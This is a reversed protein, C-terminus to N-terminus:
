AVWSRRRTIREHSLDAVPHTPRSRRFDRPLPTTSRQSRQLEALIVRLHPQNFILMRHSLESRLTRVFREALGNAPPAGLPIRVVQM